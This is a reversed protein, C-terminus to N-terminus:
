PGTKLPAYKIFIYGKLSLEVQQHKDDIQNKDGIRNGKLHGRPIRVTRRVSPTGFM